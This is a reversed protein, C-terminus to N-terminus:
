VAQTLLRLTVNGAVATAAGTDVKLAAWQKSDAVALGLGDAQDARAVGGGQAVTSATILDKNAELDPSDDDDNYVGVSVAITPTGNSDLDDAVLIADVIKHGAPIPCLVAVDDAALADTLAVTAEEVVIAGKQTRSIAPQKNEYKDSKFLAM